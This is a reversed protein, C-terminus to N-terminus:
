RQATLEIAHAGRPLRILWLGGGLAVPGGLSPRFNLLAWAPAGSKYSLKLGNGLTEAALLEGSFDTLRYEPEAAAREVAYAGRPLHLVGGGGAPWPKGNVLAGGEWRLTVPLGTEFVLKPGASRAHLVRAAAAALQPLDQAELSSEFYLATREFAASALHVLQFLEAGTQKKTPYVDQYREVINIDIALKEPRLTLPAYRRAIEPYRDPGLHWVTAPDEILFTSERPELVPLLRAADAGILDKMRTDFRDDVHTLVLDLDPNAKRLSELENLWELQMRHALTARYDLFAAMEKPSAGKAFLDVPDIGSRAMYAARVQDNMPTFRAANSHGELSEFYLEALNIGDWDFRAALNRLGEAAARKALPHQLNMLRRWDLHADQLLATKERWDPHDDWFKQSVHPFEIWAYVLIARKHCAEILRRLYADREADPEWFHWAAVHLAGIGASRWRAAFYDLDVRSRYSADFFAWLRRTEFVPELGLALLAQPLYPFREYGREGPSAATWLVAGKGVTWGAVLPARSWRERAFIRAGEPLEFVPLDLPHEWIIDLAPAHVDEVSRAAARKGGTKVGLAAALNSGGEAILIAGASARAILREPNGASGTAVIVPADEGPTLGLSELIRSWSGGDGSAAEFNVKPAASLACAAFLSVLLRM